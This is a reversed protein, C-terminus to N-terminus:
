AQPGEQETTVKTYGADKLAHYEPGGDDVIDYPGTMATELLFERFAAVSEDWLMGFGGLEVFVKSKHSVMYYVASV